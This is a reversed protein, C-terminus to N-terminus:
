ENVDLRQPRKFAERVSDWNNPRIPSKTELSDKIYEVSRYIEQQISDVQGSIKVIKMEIEDSVSELKDTNNICYQISNILDTQNSNFQSSSVRTLCIDMLRQFEIIKDKEREELTTIKGLIVLIVVLQFIFFLSIFIPIM